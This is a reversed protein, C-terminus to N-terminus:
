WKLNMNRLCSNCEHQQPARVGDMSNKTKYYFWLEVVMFMDSGVQEPLGPVVTWKRGHATVELVGM